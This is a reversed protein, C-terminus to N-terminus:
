GHDRSRRSTCRGARELLWEVLCAASDEGPTWPSRELGGAAAELSARNVSVLRAQEDPALPAAGVLVTVASVRDAHRAAFALAHPGGGSFSIVPLRNLGLADLLAALDDAVAALGRGPLRTSRGFGPRDVTLM